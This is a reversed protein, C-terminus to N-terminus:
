KAYDKCVKPLDWLSNISLHNPNYINRNHLAKRLVFSVNARIACEKDSQRDGIFLEKGNIKPYDKRFQKIMGIKPKRCICHSESQHPCIYICNIPIQSQILDNTKEIFSLDILKRSLDPQNTIIVLNWKGIIEKNILAEIDKFIELEKINRPSSIESSRMVVKNLVGDRDLFLTNPAKPKKLEFAYPKYAM